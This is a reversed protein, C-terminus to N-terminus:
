KEPLNIVSGNPLLDEISFTVKKGTKCVCTVDFGEGFESLVQRCAGCPTVPEDTPTYVVVKQIRMSPGAALVASFVASREACITLGFSINEVNCGSHMEGDATLVACGVAFQSYPAYANQAANRALDVMSKEIADGM